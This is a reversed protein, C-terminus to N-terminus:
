IKPLRSVVRMVPICVNRGKWQVDSFEYKYMSYHLLVVDYVAAFPLLWLSRWMFRRYTVNMIQAYMVILLIVSIDALIFILWSQNLLATKYIVFPSLLIALELFSTLITLELSQHLLPYRTRIATARQESFSKASMVGTDTDSQVFSYGDDRGAAFGAFFREPTISRSVAAFGGASTLCQRNILWATSLVPPRRLSRRPLALEWAYRSPQVLISAFDLARPVLNAPLFSIMSKKKAVMQMVMDEIAGAKFRTDVGCFLLLDGSSAEVLQQYAHNKALWASPGIKGSIFRVGDHAFEKIIEPTRHNQSCDDLVIIELKPYTSHTLSKLCEALDDTENRAPILVSVTPLHNEDRYLEVTIPRTKSLNRQTSIALILSGLLTVGTFALIFAEFLAPNFVALYITLAQALVLWFSARRTVVYMHDAQRREAVLRCLNFIRYGAVILVLVAYWNQFSYIFFAGFLVIECAIAAALLRRPLKAPLWILLELILLLSFTILAINFM